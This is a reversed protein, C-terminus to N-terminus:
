RRTAPEHMRLIHRPLLSAYTRLKCTSLAFPLPSTARSTLHPAHKPDAFILAGIGLRWCHVDDGRSCKVEELSVFCTQKEERLDARDLSPCSNYTNPVNRPRKGKVIAPWSRDDGFGSCRATSIWPYARAACEGALRRRVSM